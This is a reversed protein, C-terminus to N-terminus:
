FEFAKLISNIHNLEPRNQPDHQYCAIILKLIVEHDIFSRLETELQEPEQYYFAAPLQGTFFFIMLGGLGFVDEMITPKAQDCQEPPMFGHTGFGFPPSPYDSVIQYTLELDILYIRNLNDLIFNVPTIDRHIYGHQHMTDIISIIQLLWTILKQQKTKNLDKWNRKKYIDQVIQMFQKGSIFEMILYTDGEYTLIDIVKPVNIIQRLDQQLKMQWELREKMSRSGEDTWMHQRGQKIVCKGIQLFGKLYIGKFVDGKLDAKIANLIMYKNKFIHKPQKEGKPMPISYPWMEQKFLERGVYQTYVIGGLPAATPIVPGAADTTLQQLRKALYVAQISDLPYFTMVKAFNMFSLKGQLIFSAANADKAMSFSVGTELLLPSLNELIKALYPLAVSLHIVWKTEESIEGVILYYENTTINKFGQAKLLSVYDTSTTATILEAEM